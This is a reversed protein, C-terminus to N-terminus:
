VMNDMQCKCQKVKSWHTMGTCPASWIRNLNEDVFFLRLGNYFTEIDEGIYHFDGVTILLECEYDGSTVTQGQNNEGNWNITNEGIIADGVLLLDTSDTGDLIGDENLDCVFQYRGEVNSEYVVDLSLVGEYVLDECGEVTQNSSEAVAEFSAIEPTIVSYTSVEPPNIYIPHESTFDFNSSPVSKSNAGEVGISNAVISYVYGSLGDTKMEVVASEGNPGTQIMAYFSKCKNFLKVCIFWHQLGM